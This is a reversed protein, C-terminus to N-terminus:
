AHGARVDRRDARRAAVQRADCARNQAARERRGARLVARVMDGGQNVEAVLTDAALRRYLAVAKAAWGAPSLGASPRTRWCM